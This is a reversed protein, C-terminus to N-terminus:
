LEKKQALLELMRKASEAAAREEEGPEKLLAELDMDVAEAFAKMASLQDKRVLFLELGRRQMMCENVAKCLEVSEDRGERAQKTARYLAFQSMKVERETALTVKAEGERFAKIWFAKLVEDM